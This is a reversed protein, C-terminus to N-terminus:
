EYTILRPNQFLISSKRWKLVDQYPKGNISQIVLHSDCLGKNDFSKREVFGVKSNFTYSVDKISDGGYYIDYCYFINNDEDITKGTLTTSCFNMVNRTTGISDSLKIFSAFERTGMGVQRLTFLTSDEYFKESIALNFDSIRTTSLNNKNNRPFFCYRYKFFKVYPSNSFYPELGVSSEICYVHNELKVSDWFEVLVGDICHCQKQQRLLVKSNCSILTVLFPLVFFFRILSKMLDNKKRPKTTPKEPICSFNWM